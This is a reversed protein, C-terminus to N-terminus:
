YRGPISQFAAVLGTRVWEGAAAVHAALQPGQDQFLDVGLLKPVFYVLAALMLAALGHKLASPAPRLGKTGGGNRLAHMESVPAIRSRQAM